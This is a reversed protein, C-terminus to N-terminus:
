PERINERKHDARQIKHPSTKEQKTVKVCAGLEQLTEQDPWSNNLPNEEQVSRGTSRDDLM